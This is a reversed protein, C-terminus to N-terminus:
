QPPRPAKLSQLTKQIIHLAVLIHPHAAALIDGLVPHLRVRILGLSKGRVGARERTLSPCVM